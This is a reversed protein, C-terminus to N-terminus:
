SYRRRELTRTTMGENNAILYIFVGLYPLVIVVIIWLVKTFGSTDHRRFLDAFVTFLLWIWIFWFFFLLMSGFIGLFPYALLM